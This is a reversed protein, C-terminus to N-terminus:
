SVASLPRQKTRLASSCLIFPFKEVQCNFLSDVFMQVAEWGFSLEFVFKYFYYNQKLKEKAFCSGKQKYITGKKRGLLRSEESFPRVPWQENTSSKSQIGFSLAAGEQKQRLTLLLQCKYIIKVQLMRETKLGLTKINHM